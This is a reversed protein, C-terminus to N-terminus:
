TYPVIFTSSVSASPNYIALGVLLILARYLQGDQEYKQAGNYHYVIIFLVSVTKKINELGVDCRLHPWPPLRRNGNCHLCVTVTINWFLDTTTDPDHYLPAYLALNTIFPLLYLYLYLDPCKSYRWKCVRSWCRKVIESTAASQCSGNTGCRMIHGDM